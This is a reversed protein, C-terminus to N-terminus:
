YQVDIVEPHNGLLAQAPWRVLPGAGDAFRSGPLLFALSDLGLPSLIQHDPPRGRM